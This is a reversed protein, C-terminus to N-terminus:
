ASRWETRLYPQADASRFTLGLGPQRRDPYLFGGRLEPVGDFFLSEIRSHDFFYEVNVVNPLACALTTHLAPATHASLPVSAGQAQAAALGFGSAGGCRTGDAQLTDVAGAALLQHFYTPTYGYEGAAIQMGGPGRDRLLRLGALDDSSVPEEFWAVNLDAFREAFGLAQKRSYAGNADVFLAVDSGVADRAAKVRNLDDEPRSGIKMKVAQLGEAAWGGLQEQLQGVSYSTFGGSGYAMVRDRAGGLLEVLSVDLLRAKLDHLAVDVASIAGAAIGPWGLNRVAGAMTWFHRATNLADQGELLPWLTRQVVSAAAADAYAYGLGTTGGAKVEAILVGTSDWRATGDTEADSLTPVSYARVSLGSIKADNM